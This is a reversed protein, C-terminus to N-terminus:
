PVCEERCKAFPGNRQTIFSVSDKEAKEGPLVFPKGLIIILM